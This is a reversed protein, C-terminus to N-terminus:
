DEQDAACEKGLARVVHAIFVYLYVLLVDAECEISFNKFLVAVRFKQIAETIIDQGNPDSGFPLLPVGLLTRAKQDRLASNIM